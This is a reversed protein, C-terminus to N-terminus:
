SVDEDMQRCLQTYGANTGNSYSSQTIVAGMNNYMTDTGDLYYNGQDFYDFYVVEAGPAMGKAPPNINGAGFVIGAVMEGHNGGNPVPQKYILRGTYDVHEFLDGDDGIAVIVGEGDYNMGGPFNQQLTNTRHNSKARFTEPEGRPDAEQVYYVLDSKLLTNLSNTKITVKYFGGEKRTFTAKVSHLYAQVQTKTINEYFGVVFNSLGDGNKAWSPVGETSLIKTLKMEPKVVAISRIGFKSLQSEEIDKPISVMYARKPIYDFFVIGLKQMEDQEAQTPVAYFQMIRYYQNNIAPGTLSQMIQGEELQYNGSKLLITYDSNAFGSFSLGLVAITFIQLLRLRM